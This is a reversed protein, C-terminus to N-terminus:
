PRQFRRRMKLDIDFTKGGVTLTATQTGNFTIVATREVTQGDRPGGDFTVTCHRTITGSIPFRDGSGNPVPVVVNEVQLTCVITYTREGGDNHRSRSLHDEGNGNWTRQTETGVLGTVTMDRFRDISASWSEGEHEGVITTNINAKATLLADYAQQVENNADWFKYSRTIVLERRTVPVCALRQTLPNYVCNAPNMDGFGPGFSPSMSQFNVPERMIDVDEGAADAVVLALDANLLPTEADPGTADSCAGLIVACTLAGYRILAKM